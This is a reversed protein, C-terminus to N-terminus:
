HIIGCINCKRNNSWREHPNQVFNAHSSRRQFAEEIWGSLQEKSQPYSGYLAYSKHAEENWNLRFREPLYASGNTSPLTIGLLGNPLNDEGQQLSAKIEWDVYRRSHICSGILVITVTSDEVYLERIRQMVYSTDDSDIFDDADNVGLAKAIFVEGFSDLFADNETQHIHSHCVFCKRRSLQNVELVSGLFEDYNM